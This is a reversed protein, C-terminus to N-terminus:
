ELLSQNQTISIVWAPPCWSGDKESEPNLALYMTMAGCIFDAENNLAGTNAGARMREIITDRIRQEM